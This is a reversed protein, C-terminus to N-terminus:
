KEPSRPVPAGARLLEDLFGVPPCGFSLLRDHFERLSGGFRNALYKHRVDLIALKGLTYCFYEPNFTGRVAEREAVIPECLGERVFIQTAEALTLGQTHLGISSILRCDRLLADHLQAVEAEPRGSGLGREIALQEAYHAWGESFAASLYTKRALSGAGRRFHLFQLYHGPYVEHITVNRLMGDNFSRLWEEQRQPPWRPDVPTVFYIGEDGATDFPGPPNMSATSLARHFAPTEDVRCIAPEPITALENERVFLKTEEVFERARPILEEATPHSRAIQDLIDKATLPPQQADGITRLREQNRHLDARGAALLDAYPARIGERVWLLKQYREAGLPFEENAHVLFETKLREVFQRLAAEAPARAARVRNGLAEGGSIALREADDYHALLGEGMSIALRVFPEPLSRDLRQTATSLLSPVGALLEGMAAVRQPLPAYARVMYATLSLPSLYSMPNRDYERSDRLDFLPSELSLELLTCDYRRGPSLGDPPLTRLRGLLRDAEATWRDTALRSLDPLRGDYTHLGLFVALGPALTFLHDVVENELPALAAIAANSDTM